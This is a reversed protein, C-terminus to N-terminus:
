VIGRAAHGPPSALAAITDDPHLSLPMPRHRQLLGHWLLDRRGPPVENPTETVSHGSFRRAIGRECVCRPLVGNGGTAWTGGPLCCRSAVTAPAAPPPRKKPPKSSCPGCAAEAAM